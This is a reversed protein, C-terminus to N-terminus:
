RSKAESLMQWLRGSCIRQFNAWITGYGRVLLRVTNMKSIFWLAATITATFISISNVLLVRLFSRVCKSTGLYHGNANRQLRSRFIFNVLLICM